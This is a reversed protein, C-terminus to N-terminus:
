KNVRKPRGRKKIVESCQSGSRITQVSHEKGDSDCIDSIHQEHGSEERGSCSSSDSSGAEDFRAASSWGRQEPQRDHRAGVRQEELRCKTQVNLKEENDQYKTLDFWEGTSLLEIATGKNCTKHLGNRYLTYTRKFSMNAKHNPFEMLNYTFAMM